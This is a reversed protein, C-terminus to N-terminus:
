DGESGAMLPHPLPPALRALDGPTAADPLFAHGPRLEARTELWTHLAELRVQTRGDGIATLAEAGSALYAALPLERGTALGLAAVAIRAEETGLMDAVHPAAWPFYSSRLRRPGAQDGEGRGDFTLTGNKHLSVLMTRGPLRDLLQWALAPLGAGFDHLATRLRKETTVLLDCDRLMTLDGDPGSAAGVRIISAGAIRRVVEPTLTSGGLDYQVVLNAGALHRAAAAAIAQESASDVAVHTHAGVQFLKADDALYTSRSMLAPRAVVLEHHIQQDSLMSRLARSDDDDAVKSVLTVAAGLQRLQMALAAAGGWFSRQGLQELSMAPASGAAGRPDCLMYHERIVDGVVVVSTGSFGRLAAQCSQLTIEHANCLARTRCEALHEERGLSEILRTSSFVVDGSHFVVRGGYHEVCEREEVFRPDSSSAYERGKVYVDPRLQELLEVATPHPDVVVWDVFELAALNEARLSEPIYPRDPGKEILADGTLSVVLLDGLQRAFQLYRVHGPHVIDFCGHCQVVRRGEARASSLEALLREVSVIKRHLSM